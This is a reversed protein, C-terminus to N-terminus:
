EIQLPMKLRTHQLLSSFSFSSFSSSPQLHYNRHLVGAVVLVESEAIALMTFLLPLIPFLKSLSLVVSSPTLAQLSFASMSFVILNSLCQLVFFPLAFLTLVFEFIMKLADIPLPFTFILSDILDPWASSNFVAKSL